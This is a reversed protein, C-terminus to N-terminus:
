SSPEPRVEIMSRHVSAGELTRIGDPWAELQLFRDGAARYRWLTCAGSRRGPVDGTVIAQSAGSLKLLFSEGGHYLTAPFPATLDLPAIEALVLVRDSLDTAPPELYLVREGGALRALRLTRDALRHDVLGAVTYTVGLYGIADHLKPKM